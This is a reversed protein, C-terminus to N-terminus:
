GISWDATRRRRYEVRTRDGDSSGAPAGSGPISGPAARRFVQRIPDAARGHDAPGPLVRRHTRAM